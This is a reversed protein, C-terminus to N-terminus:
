LYYNEYWLKVDKHSSERFVDM